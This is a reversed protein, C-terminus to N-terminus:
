LFSTELFQFYRENSQHSLAITKVGQLILRRELLQKPYDGVSPLTCDNILCDWIAQNLITRLLARSADKYSHFQQELLAVLYADTMSRYM